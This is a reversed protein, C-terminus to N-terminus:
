HPMLIYFYFAFSLFYINQQNRIFTIQIRSGEFLIFKPIVTSMIWHQHLIGSKGPFLKSTNRHKCCSEDQQLQDIILKFYQSHNLKNILLIFINELASKWNNIYLYHFRLFKYNQLTESCNQARRAITMSM